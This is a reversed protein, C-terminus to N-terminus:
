NRRYLLDHVRHGKREGRQEFHTRPRYEPRDAWGDATNSFEPSADLVERMHWAYDEWDTALHLIGGPELVRAIERVFAPQVIRRKHHRKKPWPDPFFLLVRSLTCDGIHDRLLEVADGRFVRVNTLGEDDIARLLRGIGPRHVEVGLFDIEPHQTAMYHLAEGNGFGIELWVPAKRGFCAGLDLPGDGPEIGYRPLLEALAKDQAPTLRGERLVFSRIPRM